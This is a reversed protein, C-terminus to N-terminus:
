SNENAYVDKERIYLACAAAGILALGAAIIFILHLGDMFAHRATDALQPSFQGIVDFLAAEAADIIRGDPVDGLQDHIHHSLIAGYLAVGFSTGLPMSTNAIGTATGTRHPPVVSVALDMLHPMMIGTGIGIVLYSPILDPWSSDWHLLLGLLLGIAVIFMGLAQIFGRSMVKELALGVASFVVIPGALAMSVYGVQLASLGAQGSLWMVLFPMMGFSFLRAAFASFSVVAFSPITFLRVDIMARDRKASQIWVLIVLLQFALAFLLVIRPNWWDNDEAGEIMAYNLTFFAGAAILTSPIDIPPMDRVGALRQQRHLDPIKIITTLLAFIGIPINIAFIWQWQGYEVLAGGILPGLASAAGSLGMLIGISKTRQAREHPGFADGLLPVCTGFVIAGGAGQVARMGVLMSETDSLLCGISALLFITHGILFLTRRGIIDSLSGVSLLLSAFALSYANIIWQGGSLSLGLDEAISPLAVLVVTIDLTMMIASVTSVATSWGKARPVARHRGGAPASNLWSM